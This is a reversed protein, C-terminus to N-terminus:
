KSIQLTGLLCGDATSLLTNAMLIQEGTSPDTIKLFLEYDGEGYARIDLPVTLSTCEMSRFLRTDTDLYLLYEVLTETERLMLTVQFPIYSNGFGTNELLISYQAYDDHFTDFSITSSRLVYRYGLHRKIYEYGNMGSYLDDGRYITDKWKDLVSTDYDSSIYSVHMDKLDTIAAALDNFPNDIVVEGGNPVYQCLVNQFRIEEKRSLSTEDYTGLDSVSGLMGDNYLSLRSILTQNFAASDEPPSDTDAITRWHSPTRVALYISPDTVSALKEILTIIDEDSLFKSGHMEGYSGVFIGQIIYVSGAYKNVVPAVQEMHELIIQMDEPETELGKGDWDYIFRVILQKDSESWASFILDLQELATTSVSGSSYNKLNILLLVLRTDKNRAIKKHLEEYSFSTEDSLCYSYTKFFGQYPSALNAKTEIYESPQYDLIYYHDTYFRTCLIAAATLTTVLLLILFARIKIKM